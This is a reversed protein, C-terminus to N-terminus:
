GQHQDTQGNADDKLKLLLNRYGEVMMEIVVDERSMEVDAKLRMGSVSLRMVDGDIVTTQVLMSPPDGCEVCDM